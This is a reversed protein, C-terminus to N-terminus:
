DSTVTHVLTTNNTWTVTGGPKVSANPFRMTSSTISVGATTSAASPDVVVTGLMDPHHICHYNYTGATSFLHQYMAGNGFDGSNL